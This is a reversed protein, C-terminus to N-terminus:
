VGKQNGWIMKHLQVSLGANIKNELIFAALRSLGIKGQQPSLYIALGPNKQRILRLKELAWNLDGEGVVIKICDKGPQLTTLNKEEFSEGTQASPAKWDAVYHLHDPRNELIEVSGNTEVYFEFNSMQRVMELILEYREGLLPEGGTLLIKLGPYDAAVTEIKKKLEPVSLTENVEERNETDCYLCDLNCRSFRILYVPIGMIPAEGSLTIYREVIDFNV